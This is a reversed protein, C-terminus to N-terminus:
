KSPSHGDEKGNDWPAAEAGGEPPGVAKGETQAKGGFIKVPKAPRLGPLFEEGTFPNYKRQFRLKGINPQLGDPLKAAM